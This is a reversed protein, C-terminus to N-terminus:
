KGYRRLAGLLQELGVPRADSLAPHAVHERPHHQISEDLLGNLARRTAAVLRLTKGHDAGSELVREIAQVQGGISRVRQLMPQHNAHTNM